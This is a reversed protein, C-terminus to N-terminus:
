RNHTGTESGSDGSVGEWDGLETEMFSSGGSVKAEDLVSKVMALRDIGDEVADEREMSGTGAPMDLNDLEQDVVASIDVSRPVHDKIHYVNDNM